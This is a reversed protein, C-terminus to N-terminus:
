REECGTRWRADKKRERITDLLGGRKLSEQALSLPAPM